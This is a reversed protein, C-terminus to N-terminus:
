ALNLKRELINRTTFYLTAGFTAAAACAIGLLFMYLLAEATFTPEPMLQWLGDGLFFIGFILVLELAVGIASSLLYYVGIGLVLKAKRVVTAGFTFCFQILSISAFEILLMLLLLESAYLIMWAGMLEWIECLSKWLEVYMVPNLFFGNEEPLPAILLVPLMGIALVVMHVTDWIIANATKAALITGRKAPLTFTLYAEDTYLNKYFRIFVLVTTYFSTSFYIAIVCVLAFMVLTTILISDPENAQCFLCYRWLVAIAISLVPIVPLLFWWTRWVAKMDHKLLKLFM